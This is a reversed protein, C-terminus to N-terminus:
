EKASMGLRSRKTFVVTQIEVCEDSVNSRLRM